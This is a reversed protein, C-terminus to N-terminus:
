HTTLFRTGIVVGSAGLILSALVGREDAIGGAAVVPIKVNDVIQPILSFNGIM